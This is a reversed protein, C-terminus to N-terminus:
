RQAEGRGLATMTQGVNRALSGYRALDVMLKLGLDSEEPYVDVYIRHQPRSGPNACAKNGALVPREVSVGPVGPCDSWYLYLKVM